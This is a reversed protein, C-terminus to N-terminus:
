KSGELEVVTIEPMMNSGYSIYDVRYHEEDYILNYKEVLDSFSAPYYGETVYCELVCREVAEELYAKQEASTSTSMANVAYLFAVMVAVFVVM